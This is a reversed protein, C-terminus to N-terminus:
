DPQNRRRLKAARIAEEIADRAAELEGIQGDTLTQESRRFLDAAKAIRSLQTIFRPAAAPEGQGASARAPGATGAQAKMEEWLALQREEGDARILAVVQALKVRGQFDPLEALIPDPLAKIQRLVNASAGQKAQEWLALRTGEGDAEVIETLLKASLRDRHESLERTIADPLDLIALMRSVYTKSKGLLEALEDQSLGREEKLRRLYDALELVGLDERQINELLSLLAPDDGDTIAAPIHSKGALRSARWRREGGVIMYRDGPISRVLIPQLVGYRRISQVLEDMAAPDLLEGAEDLIRRPQAPNPEILDLSLVRLKLEVGTPAITAPVSMAAAPQAQPPANTAVLGATSRTARSLMNAAMIGKPKPM